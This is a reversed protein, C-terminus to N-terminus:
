TLSWNISASVPVLDGLIDKGAIRAEVSYVNSGLSFTRSSGYDVAGYEEWIVNGYKDKMRIDAHTHSSKLHRDM